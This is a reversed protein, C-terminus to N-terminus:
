YEFDEPLVIIPGINGIFVGTIMYDAKMDALYNDLTEADRAVVQATTRVFSCYLM